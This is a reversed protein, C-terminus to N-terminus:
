PTTATIVLNTTFNGPFISFGPHAVFTLGFAAFDTNVPDYVAPAPFIGTNWGNNALIETASATVDSLRATGSAALASITHDGNNNSAWPAIGNQPSPLTQATWTVYGNLEDNSGTTQAQLSVRYTSNSYVRYALGSYSPNPASTYEFNNNTLVATATTLTASLNQNNSPLSANYPRLAIMLPISTSLTANQVDNNQANTTTFAAIALAATMILKKM